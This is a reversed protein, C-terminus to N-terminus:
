NNKPSIWYITSPPITERMHVIRGEGATFRKQFDANQETELHFPKGTGNLIDFGGYPGAWIAYHFNYEWSDRVSSDVAEHYVQGNGISYDITNLDVYDMSFTSYGYYYYNDDDEEIDTIRYRWTGHVNWSYGSKALLLDNYPDKYSAYDSGSRVIQSESMALARSFGEKEYRSMTSMNYLMNDYELEGTLKNFFALSSYTNSGSQWSLEVVDYDDAHILLDNIKSFVVTTDFCYYSSDKVLENYTVVTFVSDIKSYVPFVGYQDGWFLDKDINVNPIFKMGTIKFGRNTLLDDNDTIIENLSTKWNCNDDFNPYYDSDISCSALLLGTVILSLDKIKMNKIITILQKGGNLQVMKSVSHDSM